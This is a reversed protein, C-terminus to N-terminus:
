KFLTKIKGWTSSDVPVEDAHLLEWSMVSTSETVTFELIAPINIEQPDNGPLHLFIKNPIFTGFPLDVMMTTNSGIDQNELVLDWYEVRSRFFDQLTRYDILWRNPLDPPPTAMTLYANFVDEPGGPPAPLDFDDLGPLANSRVGFFLTQATANKPIVTVRVGLEQANAEAPILGLLLFSFGFVVIRLASGM